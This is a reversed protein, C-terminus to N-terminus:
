VSTIKQLKGIQNEISYENEMKIRGKKGMEEAKEPNALLESIYDAMGEYDGEEVLFGTEGHDVADKIGGHLTSVVPLEASSAELISTPTGESDGNTPNVMSHQVFVNANQLLEAVEKVNKVGVFDVQNQIGLEQALKRTQNWLEGKGVMVMRADKEKELVKKFAKVTLHPAKKMTFRGVAIVTKGKTSDKKGQFKEMNVGCSVFHLKDPSAGLDVLAKQMDRSVAVIGKAYSFMEKYLSGYKELTVKDTADFGHFHVVLPINLRQCAKLVACGTLGYEALVCDPSIKKFHKVLYHTYFKPYWFPLIRKIFIRVLESLPFTFITKNKEDIYGRWGGTLTYEPQLYQLHNRIFTESYNNRNPYAVLLKM